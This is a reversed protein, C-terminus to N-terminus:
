QSNVRAYSHLTTLSHSARQYMLIGDNCVQSVGRGALRFVRRLERIRSREKTEGYRRVPGRVERHLGASQLVARRQRQKTVDCRQHAIWDAGDRWGRQLVVAKHHESSLRFRYTCCYATRKMSAVSDLGTPRGFFINYKNSQFMNWTTNRDRSEDMSMHCRM